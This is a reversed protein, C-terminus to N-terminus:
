VGVLERIKGVLTTPSFPKTFYADAGVEQSLERQSEQALATLMIVKIGRTEPDAKLQRCVELGSLGPMVIDLLMVDPRERRAMELAEDANQAEFFTYRGARSLTAAILERVCQEDDVFLITKM